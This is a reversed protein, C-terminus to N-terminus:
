SATLVIIPEKYRSQGRALHVHKKHLKLATTDDHLTFKITHLKLDTVWSEVDIATNFSKTYLM